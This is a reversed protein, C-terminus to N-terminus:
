LKINVFIFNYVISSDLNTIIQYVNNNMKFFFFRFGSTQSVLRVTMNDDNLIGEYAIDLTTSNLAPILAFPNDFQYNHDNMYLNVANLINNYEYNTIQFNEGLLLSSSM